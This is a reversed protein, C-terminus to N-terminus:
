FSLEQLALEDPGEMSFADNGDFRIIPHPGNLFSVETLQPAGIPTGNNLPDGAQDAWATVTQGDAAMVGGDAKLWLVLNAAPPQAAQGSNSVSLCLAAVAVMLSTEVGKM